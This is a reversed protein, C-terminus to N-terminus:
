KTNVKKKMRDQRKKKKKRKPEKNHESQTIRTNIYKIISNHVNM